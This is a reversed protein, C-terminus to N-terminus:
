AFLKNIEKTANDIKSDIEIKNLLLFNNNDRCLHKLSIRLALHYKYGFELFSSKVPFTEYFGALALPKKLEKYYILRENKIATVVYYIFIEYLSKLLSVEDETRLIYSYEDLRENCIKTVYELSEPVGAVDVMKKVLYPILSKRVIEDQEFIYLSFEVESILFLIIEFIGYNKIKEEHGKGHIYELGKFAATHKKGMLSSIDLASKLLINLILDLNIKINEKELVEEPEYNIGNRRPSSSQHESGLNNRKKDKNEKNKFYPHYRMDFDEPKFLPENCNSCFRNGEKELGTFYNEHGCLPCIIKM